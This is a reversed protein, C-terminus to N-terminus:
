QILTDARASPENLTVLWRLPKVLCYATEPEIYRSPRLDIERSPKPDIYRSPKLRAVRPGQAYTQLSQIRNTGDRRAPRAVPM